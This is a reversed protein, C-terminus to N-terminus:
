LGSVETIWNRIGPFEIRTNVSPHIGNGCQSHGFSVLGIQFRQGDVDTVVPSGSDGSCTDVNLKSHVCFFHDFIDTWIADCEDINFIPLTLQQLNRPYQGEENLGWGTVTAPEPDCAQCCRENCAPSIPVAAINHGIMPSTDAVRIVAIDFDLWVADYQPHLTYSDAFFLTGTTSTRDTTGGLLNIMLAPTQFELCHAATLSWQAHIVSAGCIFGGMTLDLLALMHPFREIDAPQGGLIRGTRVRERLYQPTRGGLRAPAPRSRGNSLELISVLIVFLVLKNM